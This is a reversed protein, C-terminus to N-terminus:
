KIMRRKERQAHKSQESTLSKLGTRLVIYVEEHACYSSLNKAREEFLDTLQLNLRDGTARARSLIENIDGTVEERDYAFYVQMVHGSQSMITQLTQRMGQQIHEFEESGILHKVGDVRIVSLLSGDNAVLTTPSDATQLECYSATTQKLASSMWGLLGSYFDSFFTILKKM